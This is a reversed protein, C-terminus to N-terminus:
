VLMGKVDEALGADRYREVRIVAQDARGREAAFELEGAVLPGQAM